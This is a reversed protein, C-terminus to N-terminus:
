ALHSETDWLKYRYIRFGERQDFGNPEWGKALICDTIIAMNIGVADNLEDAIPLVFDEPAGTFSEVAHKADRIDTFPNVVNLFAGM